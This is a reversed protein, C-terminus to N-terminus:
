QILVFLLDKLCRWLNMMLISTHIAVESTNQLLEMILDLGYRLKGVGFASEVASREGSEMREELLQQRHLAKDRLPRDPKPRVFPHRAGQPVAPKGPHPLSQRGTGRHIRAQTNMTVNWLRRSLGGEDFADWSLHELSLYWNVLSVAIKAGFEVPAKAKGRM